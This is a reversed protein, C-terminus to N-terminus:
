RDGEFEEWIRRAEYRGYVGEVGEVGAVGAGAGHRDLGGLASTRKRMRSKMAMSEKATGMDQVM